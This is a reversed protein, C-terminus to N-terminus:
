AQVGTQMHLHRHVPVQKDTASCFRECLRSRRAQQIWLCIWTWEGCLGSYWWGCWHVAALCRNASWFAPRCAHVGQTPPAGTARGAHGRLATDKRHAPRAAKSTPAAACGPRGLRSVGGQRLWLKSSGPPPDRGVGMHDPRGGEARLASPWTGERLCPRRPPPRDHHHYLQRFLPRNKAGKFPLPSVPAAPRSAASRVWLAFIFCCHKVARPDRRRPLGPDDVGLCELVYQLCHVQQM